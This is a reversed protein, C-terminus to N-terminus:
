KVEIFTGIHNTRNVIVFIKIRFLFKYKRHEPLYYSNSVDDDDDDDFKKIDGDLPLLRKGFLPFNYAMSCGGGIHVQTRMPPPLEVDLYTGSETKIVTLEKVMIVHNRYFTDEEIAKNQNGSHELYRSTGINALYLWLHTTVGHTRAHELM